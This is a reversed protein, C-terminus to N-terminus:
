LGLASADLEEEDDEEVEELEFITGESNDKGGVGFKFTFL